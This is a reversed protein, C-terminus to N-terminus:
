NLYIFENRNLITLCYLALAKEETIGEIAKLEDLLKVGRKVEEESAGRQFARSHAVRIQKEPKDGSHKLILKAFEEAQRNTFEGNLMGLAQTPQTTVFRGECSSDTDPFDFSALFPTVLSRKVHIYISRRAREEPSSNGWGAGPRSQGALVEKSVLPYYSPGGMKLNIIGTTAHISDRIEEASLRRMDFRWFLDNQPDVAYAKENMASTMQYANSSVILRHISKLKWDNRILESALWDLLEPHTPPTGLQGFNNASRVIGRGFHNQWIRNVIVRATLMNDPSAIWEALIRRRQSSHANKPVEPLQPDSDGFIQPYGPEVIDGPVHPNGRQLVRMPRPHAVARAVSLASERPVRKRDLARLEERLKTWQKYEDESIFNKLKENLLKERGRGESRRQEPANMKKIGREEIEIKLKQLEAQERDIEAHLQNIEPLSIDTQNDASQNGRTGYSTLGGFFALMRYYDTQPVPDIKHDHCRACNITLGLFVQSTTSLIDDLEDYKAQLQDAPEDDWLGLRLFGTAIITERTKNELEDGALQEIIFQDYPKDNNFSDIVYDRYRWANPKVGDREFSNTEAYRVADLWHRAWREGFHKSKLLRDVLKNYAKEEGDGDALYEEVDDDAPPLGIMNYTLRRILTHRDARPAPTLGKKELEALIFADIPNAVWKTNKVKPVEPRTPKVFAWHKEWQAGEEIWKQILQIEQPKLPKGEPPMRLDEDNSSIRNLLESKKANGPVIAHEGSDLAAFVTKEDTLNLSGEAEDPGHCHFCRKALIPKIDKGFDVKALVSSSGLLSTVCVIASIRFLSELRTLM